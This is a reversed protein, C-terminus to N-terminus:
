FNQLALFLNIQNHSNTCYCEYEHIVLNYFVQLIYFFSRIFITRFLTSLGFEDMYLVSTDLKKSPIVISDFIRLVSSISIKLEKSVQKFSKVDKIKNIVEEEVNKSLSHNFAVFDLKSTVVKKCCSCVYRQKEVHIIVKKSRYETDKINVTRYDKINMKKNCCKPRKDYRKANIHYTNEFFYSKIVKVGKLDPRFQTYNTQM